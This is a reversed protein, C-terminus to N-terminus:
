VLYGRCNVYEVFLRIGFDDLLSAFILEAVDTVALLAVDNSINM